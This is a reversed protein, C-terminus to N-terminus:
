IYNVPNIRGLQGCFPSSQKAEEIKIIHYDQCDSGLGYMNECESISDCICEVKRYNDDRQRTYEDRFEFVIRLM